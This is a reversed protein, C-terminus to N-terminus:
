LSAKKSRLKKQSKIRFETPSCRMARRFLRNFFSVQSFGSALAIDLISRESEQLERCAAQLRLRNLFESFTRGSHIKFQRAFTPRSMGTVLLVDELRVEDRFHAILHRVAKAIAQQYHSETSLAFSRSSLAGCENEPASALRALISFLIALQGPGSVALLDHLSKATERATNGSIRLGRGARKFLEALLLNEPFAWFPHSEPFHWQVSIGGSAGRTHWYHPLKEGLLVLDGAGFPAIHDGVFRTGEGRTFLTLEMEVHFHWHAGEGTVRKVKDPSVVCEVDRVNQTWRLVRFSHGGPLEIKERAVRM